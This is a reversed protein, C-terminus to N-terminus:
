RREGLVERRIASEARLQVATVAQRSVKLEGALEKVTRERWYLGAIVGRQRPSLRRLARAVRPNAIGPTPMEVTSDALREVTAEDLPQHRTRRAEARIFHSVRRGLKAKLYGRLPVGREPQFSLVLECLLAASEQEVDEREVGIPLGRRARAVSGLLPQYREYLVGLAARDGTKALVALRSDADDDVTTREARDSPAPGDQRARRSVRNEVV